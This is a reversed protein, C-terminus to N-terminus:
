SWCGTSVPAEKEENEPPPRHEVLVDNINNNQTLNKKLANGYKSFFLDIRKLTAHLSDLHVVSRYKEFKKHSQIFITAIYHLRKSELALDKLKAQRKEEIESKGSLYNNLQGFIIGGAVCVVGVWTLPTNTEEVDGAQKKQTMNDIIVAGLGFLSTAVCLAKCTYSTIIAKPKGCYTEESRSHMENFKIHIKHIKEIQKEVQIVQRTLFIEQAKEDEDVILEGFNSLQEYVISSIIKWKEEIEHDTKLSEIDDLFSNEDAVNISVNAM